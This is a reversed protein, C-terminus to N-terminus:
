DKNDVSEKFNEELESTMSKNLNVSEYINSKAIAQRNFYVATTPTSSDKKCPLTSLDSSGGGIRGSESGPFSSLIISLCSKSGLVIFWKKWLKHIDQNHVGHLFLILVGQSVVFISFLIQFTLSFEKVPVSTAALGLTWDRGFMVAFIVAITFKAKYAKIKAHADKVIVGQSRYCLFIM